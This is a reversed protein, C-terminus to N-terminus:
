DKKNVKPLYTHLVWNIAFLLSGSRSCIAEDDTCNLIKEKCEDITLEIVEISEGHIGGGQSVRKSEDLEAFFLYQMAGNIGQHVRYSTILQIDKTSDIDFGVEELIEEKAIEYINKGEKDIIGACLEITYGDSRFPKERKELRYNYISSMKVAPRFQKVFVLKKTDTRYLITAVSDHAMVGEWKRVGKGDLNYEILVPKVYHADEPNMRTVSVLTSKVKHVSMRNIDKFLNVFLRPM